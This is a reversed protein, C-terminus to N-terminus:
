ISGLFILFHWLMDNNIFHILVVIVRVPYHSRLCDPSAQRKRIGDFKIFPLM